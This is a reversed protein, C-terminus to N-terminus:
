CGLWHRAGALLAFALLNAAGLWAWARMASSFLFVSGCVALWLLPVLWMTFQYKNLPAIGGPGLWAFLGSFALALGFGLVAGALSKGLWEGRSAGRAAM